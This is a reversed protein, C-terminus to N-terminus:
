ESSCSNPLLITFTTGKGIESSAEITGNHLDVIRKALALGLGNGSISRSKDGQYFKEYIRDKVDDSMGPGNDTIVIKAYSNESRLKIQILGNESVFKMANGIINQWLQALLESNGYFTVNDLDIDLEINKKTWQDEFLLIIERLQEDLSYNNANTSIEQNELRSLLLINGTLSSLRKTNYMIKMIYTKRKEESLSNNQLLTVYGESASLPTKFEHSGNEIFDNRFMETNGLERAMINFNHAMISIEEARINENIKINFNGKAIEKTANSIEVVSTIAKNGFIKSLITGVIVSVIPFVIILIGRHNKDLVGLHFLIMTISGMLFMTISLIFFVMFSFVIALNCSHKKM